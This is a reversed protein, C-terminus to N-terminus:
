SLSWGMIRWTHRIKKGSMQLRCHRFESAIERWQGLAWLLVDLDDIGQNEEGSARHPKSTAASLGAAVDTHKAHEVHGAM